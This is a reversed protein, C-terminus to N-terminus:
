PVIWNVAYAWSRDSRIYPQQVYVRGNPALAIGVTDHKGRAPCTGDSNCLQGAQDAALSSGAPLNASGNPWVLYRAANDPGGLGDTVRRYTMVIDLKNTVDIGVSGYGVDRQSLVAHRGLRIVGGSLDLGFLRIAADVYPSGGHRVGGVDAYYLKDNRQV